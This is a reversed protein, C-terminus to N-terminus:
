IISSLELPNEDKLNQFDCLSIDSETNACCVGGARLDEQNGGHGFGGEGPCNTPPVVQLLLEVTGPWAEVEQCRRIGCAEEGLKRQLLVPLLFLQIHIHDSRFNRLLKSFNQIKRLM